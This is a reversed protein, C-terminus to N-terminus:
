GLWGARALAAAGREPCVPPEQVRFGREALARRVPARLPRGPGLLGGALAVPPAPPATHAPGPGPARGGAGGALRERLATAHASLAAVAGEVLAGAVGDGTRQAEVVAPALAAVRARGAAAAWAPLAAPDDVGAHALVAARLATAPGRGDEARLVAGLAAMGLAFGSGEDGLQPGWGGVRAVTGARSRGWAVSGTGALLLIGAGAPFADHFAAEADTGVGV